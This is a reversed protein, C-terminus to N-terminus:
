FEDNFWAYRGGPGIALLAPDVKLPAKKGAAIVQRVETIAQNALGDYYTAAQFDEQARYAEAMAARLYLDPYQTLVWNTTVVDSLALQGRYLFRLPYATDLLTNFVIRDNDRDYTWMTPEHSDDDLRMNALTEFQIPEEDGSDTLWLAIPTTVSLASTSVYRSGSTGTLSATSEVAPIRRNLRGEARNIFDQVEADTFDDRFTEAKITTQLASYTTSM